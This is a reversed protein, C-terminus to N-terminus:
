LIEREYSNRLREAQTQWTLDGLDKNLLYMPSEIILSIATLIDNPDPNCVIGLEYKEITNQIEPLRSGLIKLGAFIYEFLKNPLCYYDSLSVNEVLCLGYNAGSVLRVVEEHRVPPHRHINSYQSSFQDILSDLVGFGVFVVQVQIGVKSFADLCAEIGRGPGLIGLYVFILSSKPISFKVRLYDLHYMSDNSTLNSDMFPSNLVLCSPKEGLKHMYWSIISESVSIFLDVKKWFFKEIILTAKSLLLSQGNKNSELEHADYVLRAGYLMRLIAGSPLALTDHCHVIRRSCREKYFIQSGLRTARITFEFLELTYRIPRPLWTLLRSWLRLSHNKGGPIINLTNKSNNGVGISLVMSDNLESLASIEKLIRNDNSVDTNTIHVILIKTM